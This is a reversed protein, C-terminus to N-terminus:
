FHQFYRRVAQQQMRAQMTVVMDRPLKWVFVCGDGSASILRKCDNTFRLGVYFFVILCFTFEVCNKGTVLESHGLMVAMCEGTYYDYVSLSKDTCSTAIYIGSRDLSVQLFLECFPLSKRFLPSIHRVKILTGDEGLSGKFTKSHKGSEVNYVRINRDQCATLVHKQSVDVEMDYLTTKGAVNHDRMFQKMGNAAVIQYPRFIISKDASCSVM